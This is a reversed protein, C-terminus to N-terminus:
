LGILNRQHGLESPVSPVFYTSIFYRHRVQAHGDSFLKKKYNYQYDDVAQFLSFELKRM